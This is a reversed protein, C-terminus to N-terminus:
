NYITNKYRRKRIVYDSESTEGNKFKKELECKEDSIKLLTDINKYESKSFSGRRRTKRKRYDM